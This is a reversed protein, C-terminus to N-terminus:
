INKLPNWKNKMLKNQPVMKSFVGAKKSLILLENRFVSFTQKKLNIEDRAQLDYAIKNSCKKAQM